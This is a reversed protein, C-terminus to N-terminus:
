RPNLAQFIGEPDNRSKMRLFDARGIALECEDKHLGQITALAVEEPKIGRDSQGRRARAGQDLETDVTPPIIEFVKIPTSRLQHRLSCSFSHLAAKTACYVPMIALPVFGLGSTVNVIASEQQKLLHPIFLGSLHVPALLNIVIESEEGLYNDAGKTFDIQRQIGANNVLVNLNNFNDVTWDFLAKREAPNAVDCQRIHVAPLKEKAERLRKERRGCIIVKNGEKLFVEALAFGIGTAGGTILITNGRINM